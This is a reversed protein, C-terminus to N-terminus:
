MDFVQVFAIPSTLPKSHTTKSGGGDTRSTGYDAKAHGSLSLIEMSMHQQLKVATHTQCCIDQKTKRIILMTM